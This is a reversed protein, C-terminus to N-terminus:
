TKSEVEGRKLVSDVLNIFGKETEFKSFASLLPNDNIRRELMNIKWNLRAIYVAIPVSFVLLAIILQITESTLEVM